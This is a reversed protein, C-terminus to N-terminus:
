SRSADYHAISNKGREHMVFRKKARVSATLEQVIAAMSGESTCEDRLLRTM